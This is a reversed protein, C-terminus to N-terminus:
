LGSETRTDIFDGLRTLLKEARFRSEVFGKLINRGPLRYESYITSEGVTAYNSVFEITKALQIRDDHFVDIHKSGDRVKKTCKVGEAARCELCIVDIPEM